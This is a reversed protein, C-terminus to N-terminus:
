CCYQNVIGSATYVTIQEQHHSSSSGSVHLAGTFIFLGLFTADQQSYNTIPLVYWSKFSCAAGM